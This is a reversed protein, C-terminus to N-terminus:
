PLPPLGAAYFIRRGGSLDLPEALRAPKRLMWGYNEEEDEEEDNFGNFWRSDLETEVGIIEVSGIVKGFAREREYRARIRAPEVGKEAAAKECMDDVHDPADAKKGAHIYLRGRFTTSWGRNEINKGGSIIAWAWPQFVTLVPQGLRAVLDAKKQGRDDLDFERCLEKLRDRPLGPLIEKRIEEWALADLADVLVAKIRRDVVTTIGCRDIAARLEDITLKELLDKKPLVIATQESASM